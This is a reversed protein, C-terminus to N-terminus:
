TWKDIGGHLFGDIEKKSLLLEKKERCEKCLIGISICKDGLSNMDWWYSTKGMGEEESLKHHCSAIVEGM